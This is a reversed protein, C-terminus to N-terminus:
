FKEKLISYYRRSIVHNDKEGKLKVVYSRNFWKELKEIYDINIITSRHIRIFKNGPLTDEWEKLSRSVSMKEGNSLIVWSYKEDAQLYKIESFKIFKPTGKVKIMVHGGYDSPASKKEKQERNYKSILKERLKLRVEIASKLEKTQFPKTLYDDAGLEMGKRFDERESLSTLFIFPILATIEDSSLEEKLQYGDKGPMNVDSIILDPLFRRAIELGDEGNEAIIVNYGQLELFGRITTRLVIDDDIVLISIM